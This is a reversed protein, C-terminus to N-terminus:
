HLIFNFTAVAVTMSNAALQLQLQEDHQESTLTLADGSSANVSDVLSAAGALISRCATRNIVCSLQKVWINLVSQIKSSQVEPDALEM